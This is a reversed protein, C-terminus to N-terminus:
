EDDRKQRNHNHKWSSQVEIAELPGSSKTRDRHVTAFEFGSNPPLVQMNTLVAHQKLKSSETLLRIITDNM